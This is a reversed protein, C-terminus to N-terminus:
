PLYVAELEALTAGEADQLRLSRGGIRYGATEELAAALAAAQAALEDPFAMMTSAALGVSLVGREVALVAGLLANCGVSAYFRAAETDLTLFPENAPPLWPLSVGQITRIRWVTGTLLPAAGARACTEGPWTAQFADVMVSLRDPGEMQPRGAITAELTVFM